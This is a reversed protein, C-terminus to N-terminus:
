KGKLSNSVFFKYGLYVLVVLITLSIAASLLKFIAQVMALSIFSGTGLVAIQATKSLNKFWRTVQGAVNNMSAFSSKSTNPIKQAKYEPVSQSNIETELDKLRQQLERESETSM